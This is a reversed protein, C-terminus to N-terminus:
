EFVQEALRAVRRGALLGPDERLRPPFHSATAWRLPIGPHSPEGEWRSTTLCDMNPPWKQRGGLIGTGEWLWVHHPCCRRHSPTRAVSLDTLTPPVCRPQPGSPVFAVTSAPAEAPGTTLSMGESPGQCWPASASQPPALGLNQISLRQHTYRARGPQDPCRETLMQQAIHTDSSNRPRGTTAQACQRQRGLSRVSCPGSGPAWRSAEDM